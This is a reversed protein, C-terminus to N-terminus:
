HYELKNFPDTCKVMELVGFGLHSALSNALSFSKEAMQHLTSSVTKVRELLETLYGTSPM